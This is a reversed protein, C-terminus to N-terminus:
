FGARGRRAGSVPARHGRAAGAARVASGHLLARSGIFDPLRVDRRAAREDGAAGHRATGARRGHHAPRGGRLERVLSRLSAFDQGRHARSRRACSGGRVSGPEDGALDDGSRSGHAARARSGAPRGRPGPLQFRADLRAARAVARSAAPWRAECVRARQRSGSHRTRFARGGVSHPPRRRSGDRRASGLTARPRQISGAMRPSEICLNVPAM